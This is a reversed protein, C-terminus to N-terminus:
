AIAKLAAVGKIDGIMGKSALKPKIKIDEPKNDKPINIEEKVLLLTIAALKVKPEIKIRHDISRM